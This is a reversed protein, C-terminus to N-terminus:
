QMDTNLKYRCIRNNNKDAVYIIKNFYCVGSPDNFGFPGSSTGDSGKGGFSVIVQKKFTSNAPPNVGEFGQNTFVYLSDTGTDVVFSYQLNDPAVYCDVPNKFRFSQYQFRDAKTKDFNLYSSTEGYIWGLDPDNTATIRLFRFEVNQTQDSQTIFFDKSNSIGNVRQPPGALSAISSVGLVSKLGSTVPSLGLAYSTNNGDQDYILIANDPRIFTNVDNRPGTRSVYVTNDSLTAIGTFQVLSDDSGRSGTSARSDDCLPHILTDVFQYQGIATNMLHYIAARNGVNPVNVRGAVYLHLRRDMTVDTAGPIPITTYKTGKQDLINVGNDDVVYILEDYGVIVDVPHSFNTFFPFIPVYGVANPILNPDIAGQKFIQDTQADQKSGFIGSCSSFIIASFIFLLIYFLKKM